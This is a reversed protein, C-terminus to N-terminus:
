ENPVELHKTGEYVMRVPPLGKAVTVKPDAALVVDGDAKWMGLANRMIGEHHERSQELMYGQYRCNQCTCGEVFKHFGNGFVEWM